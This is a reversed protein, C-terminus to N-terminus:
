ATGAEAPASRGCGAICFCYLRIRAARPCDDPADSSDLGDYRPVMYTPVISNYQYRLPKLARVRVRGRTQADSRGAWGM